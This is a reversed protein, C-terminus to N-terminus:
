YAGRWKDTHHNAIKKAIDEKKVKRIVLFAIIFLPLFLILPAILAGMQMSTTNTADNEINKMSPLLSLSFFFNILGHTIVLPILKNTKLLLVGFFFGIFTAYVVQILVAMSNDNKL